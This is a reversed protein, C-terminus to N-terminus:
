NQVWGDDGESDRSLVSTNDLGNRQERSDSNRSEVSPKLRYSSRVQGSDM